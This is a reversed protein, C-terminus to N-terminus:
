AAAEAAIDVLPAEADVLQGANCHVKEVLGAVRARVTVEMKMGELTVLPAGVAVRDGPKVAVAVVRGPMPSGPHADDTGRVKVAYPDDLRFEWAAGDLTVQCRDGATVAVLAHRRGDIDLAWADDPRHEAAVAHSRGDHDIQWRGPGAAVARLEILRGDGADLGLRLGGGGLRWGDRQAWPGVAEDPALGHLFVAAAALRAAVPVDRPALLGDLAHDLFQTDFAGAAVRPDAALARLLALNNPLGLLATGALAERLRALAAARDPGAVILKALMSDYHPTIRDGDGFGTDLRLTPSAPPARFRAIRGTAPVFGRAPDEACIRVEIAHGAPAIEGQTLPLREGAAVRLQWEVLDLGTTVPHEVQLRTNMEMFYFRRDAGVIFEVTGANVYDVARAARVAAEGMAARLKADLFPSPTEELIKQYRRQISCEREFLHVVNDHTDGFVQIEVHRPEAVYKEVIVRDDGFGSKAERRAAGLAEAFDEARDVRRMGKGGGGAVAKIMVPYGIKAAEAALTRESQDAGLYGPVVPVGAAAMLAKAADKSGMKETSEPHPGVFVIGAAACRRAFGANQALFGYGPHIAQAGAELAVAILKDMALYSEAPADGGLARAVDCAAVHRARRDANSYAAVTRVGLRRCTAAIRCAIEGRNAILLTDFM